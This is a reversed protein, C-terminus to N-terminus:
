RQPQRNRDAHASSFARSSELTGLLEILGFVLAQGVNPRTSNRTVILRDSDLHAITMMSAEPVFQSCHIGSAKVTSEESFLMGDDFWDVLALM